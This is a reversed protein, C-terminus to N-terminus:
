LPLSCEYGDYLSSELRPIPISPDTEHLLDFERMESVFHAHRENM